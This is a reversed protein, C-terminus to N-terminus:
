KYDQIWSLSPPDSLTDTKCMDAVVTDLDPEGQSVLQSCISRNNTIRAIDTICSNRMPIYGQAPEGKILACYASKKSVVAVKNFCDAEFASKSAPNSINAMKCINPDLKKIAIAEMCIGGQVQGCLKIDLGASAAGDICMGYFVKDPYTIKCYDANKNVMGLCQAKFIPVNSPAIQNNGNPGLEDCIAPNNNKVAINEICLISNRPIELSDCANIQQRVTDSIAVAKPLSVKQATNVTSVTSTTSSIVQSDTTTKQTTTTAIQPQTVQNEIIPKQNKTNQYFYVGGSIALVVIIILLPVVFGNQSNKM